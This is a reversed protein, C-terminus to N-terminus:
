GGQVGARQFVRVVQIAQTLQENRQSEALAQADIGPKGEQVSLSGSLPTPLGDRRIGNVKKSHKSLFDGTPQNNDWSRLNPPIAPDTAQM